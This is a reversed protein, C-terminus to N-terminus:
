GEFPRSNLLIAVGVVLWRLPRPNNRIRALAGDCSSELPLTCVVTTATSGTATTGPAHSDLDGQRSGRLHFGARLMLSRPACSRRVSSSELGPIGVLSSAALILGQMPPMDVRLNPMHSIHFSEFHVWMPHTPNALRGHAFTDAALLYSFEDHHEPVPVPAVPLLSVRLALAFAAVVLISRWPKASLRVARRAIAEFFRMGVRPQLLSLLAAATLLALELQVVHLLVGPVLTEVVTRLASSM